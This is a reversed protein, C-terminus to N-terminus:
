GLRALAHSPVGSLIREWLNGYAAEKVRIAQSKSLMGSRNRSDTAHRIDDEGALAYSHEDIAAKPM